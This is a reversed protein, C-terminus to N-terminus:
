QSHIVPNVAYHSCFRINIHPHIVAIMPPSSHHVPSLLVAFASVFGCGVFFFPLQPPPPPPSDLLHVDLLLEPLLLWPLSALSPCLRPSVRASVLFCLKVAPLSALRSCHLVGPTPHLSPPRRRYAARSCSACSSCEGASARRSAL